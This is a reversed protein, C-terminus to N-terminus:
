AVAADNGSSGAARGALDDSALTSIHAIMEGATISTLGERFKTSDQGSACTVGLVFLFAGFFHKVIRGRHAGAARSGQPREPLM